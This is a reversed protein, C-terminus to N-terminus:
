LQSSNSRDYAQSNDIGNNLEKTEDKPMALRLSKEILKKEEPTLERKQLHEVRGSLEVRSRYKEHNNRLWFLIATLNRDRIAALLQGEAMDNILCAGEAIAEDALKAFDKDKQKWRYFTARAVGSKQCASEIIPLKKLQELLSQKQKNNKM